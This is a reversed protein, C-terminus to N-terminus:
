LRDHYQVEDWTIFQQYRCSCVVPLCVSKKSKRWANVIIGRAMGKWGMSLKILCLCRMIYAEVNPDSAQTISLKTLILCSTKWIWRTQKRHQNLSLTNNATKNGKKRMMEENINKGGREGEKEENHTSYQKSQVIHWFM